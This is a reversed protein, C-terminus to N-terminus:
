SEVHLRQDALDDSAAATSIQEQDAREYIECLTVGIRVLAADLEAPSWGLQELGVLAIAGGGNIVYDPAYLIGRARLRDAADPQALQNNASGAVVRCRLREVTDSTLVGGVACPAYVDCEVDFIENAEIVKAGVRAAVERARESDIDAISLAAGAAALHEALASGVGGTGQVLVSRGGLESSGFAYELSAGIGHFVGLATPAAPNGSGGAKLSRGFVYETREGIVDMDAENTNIDSSTRYKGGLSAVLEAYRLLLARRREGSPISPVALVAKGGGFPLGAVALKRTMAASLRMADELADAPAAYVKMRTGGGAPGLRTSHLCVFIWGDSERDRRIVATEGDWADLLGEFSTRSPDIEKRAEHSLGLKSM